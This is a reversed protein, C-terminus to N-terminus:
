RPSKGHDKQCFSCCSRWTGLTPTRRPLCATQLSCPSTLSGATGLLQPPHTWLCALGLRWCTSYSPTRYGAWNRWRLRTSSLAERCASPTERGSSLGQASRPQPPTLALWSFARLLGLGPLRVLRSTFGPWPTCFPHTFGRQGPCTPDACHVVVKFYDNESFLAEKPSVWKAVSSRRHELKQQQLVPQEQQQLAALDWRRREECSRCEM